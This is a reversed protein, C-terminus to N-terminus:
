KYYNKNIRLYRRFMKKGREFFPAYTVEEGGLDTSIYYYLASKLENYM